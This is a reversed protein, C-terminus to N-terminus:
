AVDHSEGRLPTDRHQRRSAQRGIRSPDHCRLEFQWLGALPGVFFTVDGLGGVGGFM